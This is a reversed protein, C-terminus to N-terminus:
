YFEELDPHSQLDGSLKDRKKNQTVSHIYERAQQWQRHRAIVQVPITDLELIRAIALRHFGERWYIGGKRGITVLPELENQYRRTKRRGTDEKPVIHESEYNPRYGDDRISKYLEEVFACRVDPYTDPNDKKRLREYYSTKEWSKNQVFRERLGKIAYQEEIPRLQSEADWTGGRVQGMGRRTNIEPSFYEIEAPDVEIVKFPAPPANYVLQNVISNHQTRVSFHVEYPLFTKRGLIRRPLARRAERFLKQIKGEQLLEWGQSIANVESLQIIDPHM